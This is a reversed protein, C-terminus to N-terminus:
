FHLGMQMGLDNAIQDERSLGSVSVHDFMVYLGIRPTVQYGITAGLRTTPGQRPAGPDRGDDGTFPDGFGNGLSFGFSLRDNQQLVSNALPMTWAIGRYSPDPLGIAGSTGGSQFQPTLAWRLWGPLGTSTGAFAPNDGWASGLPVLRVTPTILEAAWAAPGCVAACALAAVVSVRLRM